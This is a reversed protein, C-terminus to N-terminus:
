KRSEMLIKVVAPMGKKAQWMYAGTSAKFFPFEKLRDSVWKKESGYVFASATRASNFLETKGDFYVMVPITVRGTLAKRKPIIGTERWSTVPPPEKSGVRWYIDGSPRHAFGGVSMAQRETPSLGVLLEDRLKAASDFRYLKGKHLAMVQHAEYFRRAKDPDEKKTIVKRAPKAYLAELKMLELRADDKIDRTLVLHPVPQFGTWKPDHEVAVTTTQHHFRTRPYEVVSERSSHKLGKQGGYQPSMTPSKLHLPLSM